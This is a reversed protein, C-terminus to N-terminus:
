KKSIKPGIYPVKLGTKPTKVPWEFHIRFKPNNIKGHWFCTINKTTDEPDPFTMEKEFRNKNTDSEDSFWSRDGVFYTQRLREGDATLTGDLDMNEMIGQLVGLLARIRRAMSPNYPYGSLTAGCGEGLLVKPFDKTALEIVEPWSAPEPPSTEAAAILAEVTWMNPVDCDGYPAEDIGHRVILPSQRFDRVSGGLLSFVAALSGHIIRRAAEGLGLDTVEVGEFSFYDNKEFERENEFFPGSQNLWGLIQLKEDRNFSAFTQQL